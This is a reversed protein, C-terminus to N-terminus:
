ENSYFCSTCLNGRATQKRKKGSTGYAQSGTASNHAASTSATSVATNDASSAAAVAASFNVAASALGGSGGVHALPCSAGGSANTGSVGSAGLVGSAASAAAGKRKWYYYFSILDKVTKVPESTVSVVGSENRAVANHAPDDTSGSTEERCDEPKVEDDEKVTSKVSGTTLVKRRGGGRGRTRGSNTQGSNSGTSGSPASTNLNRGGFFERQITHFDKGHLRLAHAFLRVQDATWHRPTN